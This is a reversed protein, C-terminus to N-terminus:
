AADGDEFRNTIAVLSALTEKARGSDIADAAKIVGEEITEVVGGVILAAASNLLVIDRYAGEKGFLLEKFARANYAADGGMLAKEEVRELGFQEPTITFTTVEGDKLEAVFTKDTLTIEDMGDAGYVVWARETGLEKLTQAIPEVWKQSFVGMLQRTPRSPNILPGLLNFITRLGLEQRIPAVHRMAKHYRPAMMFCIGAEELAALTTKEDTEINVGLETLVNASGSRSSVAKNGHKAVPVGCAAVVIAVTTSINYSGKGDGGTGCTDVISQQLENPVHLRLAKTRLAEAAGTLESINEGKMRLGTLLSAIQAPTAGGSMIIQFVHGAEIQSLDEGNVVKVLADQITNVGM